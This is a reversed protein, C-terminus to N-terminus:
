IIVANTFYVDKSVERFELAYESEEREMELLPMPDDMEMVESIRAASAAGTALIIFVGSLNMTAQLITTFYQRFAMIEGPLIYGLHVRITAVVIVLVMSTYFIADAIPHTKISILSAELGKNALENNVKDYRDMEYRTKSLAKIVRIGTANEQVNRVMHDLVAQKQRNVPITKKTFHYVVFGVIPMTALVMSALVVDRTFTIVIGGIMLAPGRIGMKLVRNFMHNINYTDSTLRSIASPVTIGDLQRASLSSVKDFLDQRMTKVMRNAITSAMANAGVNIGMGLIAIVLMKVGYLVIVRVGSGEIAVNIIDALASPIMLDMMAAVLKLILVLVVVWVYPKGYSLIKKM